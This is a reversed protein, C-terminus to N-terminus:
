PAQDPTDAILEAFVEDGIAENRRRRALAPRLIEVIAAIRKLDAAIADLKTKADSLGASLAALDCMAAQVRDQARYLSQMAENM